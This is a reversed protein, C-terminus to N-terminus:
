GSVGYFTGFKLSKATFSALHCGHKRYRLLSAFELKCGVTANVNVKREVAIKFDHLKPLIRKHFNVFKKSNDTQPTQSFKPGLGRQGIAPAAVPLPFQISLITDNKMTFGVLLM